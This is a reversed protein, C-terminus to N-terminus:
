LAVFLITCKIASFVYTILINMLPSDLTQQELGHIAKKQLGTRFIKPLHHLLSTGIILFSFESYYQLLSVVLFAIKLPRIKFFLSPLKQVDELFATDAFRRRILWTYFLLFFSIGYNLFCLLCYAKIKVSSIYGFFLSIFSFFITILFLLSWLPKFDNQVRKRLPFLLIFFFLYGIFGWLSVPLGLFMAWPSQAVTDCNITKSIACFSAFNINTFNSYHTYTLYLCNIIGLLVLGAILTHFFSYPYNKSQKQNLAM